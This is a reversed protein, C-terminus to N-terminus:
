RSAASAPATGSDMSPANTGTTPTTPMGLSRRDCGSVILAALAALLLAAAQRM